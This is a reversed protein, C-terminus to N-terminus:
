NDELFKRTCSSEKVEKAERLFFGMNWTCFAVCDSPRRRLKSVKVTKVLTWKESINESKIFFFTWQAFFNISHNFINMRTGWVHHNHERVAGVLRLIGSLDQAKCFSFCTGMCGPSKASAPATFTRLCMENPDCNVLFLTSEPCGRNYLM